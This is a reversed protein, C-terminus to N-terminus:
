GVATRACRHRRLAGALHEALPPHRAHARGGRRHDPRPPRDARRGRLRGLAVARRRLAFDYGTFDLGPPSRSTRPRRAGAALEPVVPAPAPAAPRAQAGDGLPLLELVASAASTRAAHHAGLGRRGQRSSTERLGIVESTATLTDGPYVPQLFRGEAYGLNAVANLSVDPVTRGFVIHFAALDEIPSRPLGCARAFADSSYLAFRTPYLAAYLARDGETVTRPVAHVLTQGLRYDEFFNGARSKRWRESIASSSRRPRVRRRGGEGGGPRLADQRRRRRLRLGPRRLAVLGQALAETVKHCFAAGDDDTLYRYALMRRMGPLALLRALHAGRRHRRLRGRHHRRAPRRGLGPRAGPPGLRSAARQDARDGGLAWLGLGGFLVLSALDGNVLLHALAWVMVGTLMPHRLWSRARGKRTAWRGDAGGRRADDPQQPAHGLRAPRLAAVFPAGRYGIVMLVLGVVILAAVVGKAPGAGVREALAVRGAPAARKFLHALIWLALGLVLLAM